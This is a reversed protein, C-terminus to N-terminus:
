DALVRRLRGAPETRVGSPLPVTPGLYVPRAGAYRGILERITFRGAGPRPWALAPRHKALIERYWDFGLLAVNVVGVDPRRGEVDQAYWLPFTYPDSRVLIVADPAVAGLTGDVLEEVERSDSADAAGFGEWIALPVLALVVLYALIARRRVIELLFTAGAGIWVALVLYGPLLYVFADSVDYGAAYALVVLAFVVSGGAFWPRRRFLIVLGVPALPWAPIPFQVWTLAAWDALRTGLYPLPYAFAFKRYGAGTVLWRFGAFTEPNGWDIIPDAASRIPLWLYLLLGPLTAAAAALLGRRTLRDRAGVLIALALPAILVLTVHHAMGAGFALGASWLPADGDAFRLLLLTVLAVFFLALAYVEAIVCQGWVLPAFAFLLAGAVAGVTRAPRPAPAGLRGILHLIVVAAVAGAVGSFLGVRWAVTAIPLKTFLWAIMTWLPYGTSHPIGACWAATVLDGGDRGAHLFTLGPPMAAVFGALAVAAVLFSPGAGAPRSRATKSAETM